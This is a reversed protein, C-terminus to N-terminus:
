SASASTSRRLRATASSVSGRRPSLVAGALTIRGDVAAQDLVAQGSAAAVTVQAANGEADIQVRLVVIGEWGM